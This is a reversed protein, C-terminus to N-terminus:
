DELHMQPAVDLRLTGRVNDIEMRRKIEATVQDFINQLSKFHAWKEDVDRKGIPLLMDIRGEVVYKLAMLDADNFNALEHVNFLRGENLVRDLLIPFDRRALSPLEVDDAPLDLGGNGTTARGADM